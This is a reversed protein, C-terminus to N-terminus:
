FLFSTKKNILISIKLLFLLFFFFFFVKFRRLLDQPTGTVFDGTKDNIYVNKAGARRLHLSEISVKPSSLVRILQAM